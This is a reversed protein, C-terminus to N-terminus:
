REGSQDADEDDPSRSADDELALFLATVAGVVVMYVGVDFLLASGVPLGEKKGDEVVLFPWVSELFADGEWWGWVGAMVAAGLGLMSLLEPAIRMARRVAGTDEAKAYLAFATAAVLGGIFGGGPENHGRLLIFLSYALMLPALFRTAASLILSNM